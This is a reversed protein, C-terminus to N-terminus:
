YGTTWGASTFASYNSLTKCKNAQESTLGIYKLTKNGSSIKAANKCMMLINNLSEDSLNTCGYFANTMDKINSTNLIPVTILKTCGYFTRYFSINDPAILEPIETINICNEFTYGMNTVKNVDLNPIVTISTCNSFAANISTVIGTNLEPLKKLKTCNAFIASMDTVKNTNTFSIETLNSCGSFMRTMSTANDTNLTEVSVLNVCREFLDDMTTLSSIDLLTEGNANKPIIYLNKDISKNDDTLVLPKMDNYIIQTNAYINASTDNFLNSVTEALTGTEVGNKGYFEKEYVYDPTADLQTPAIIYTNHMYKYADVNNGSDVPVSLYNDGQRIAVLSTMIIDDYTGVRKTVPISQPMLNVRLAYNTGSGGANVVSVLSSIDQASYTQNTLDLTYLKVSTSPASSFASGLLTNQLELSTNIELALEGKTAALYCLSNNYMILSGSIMSYTGKYNDNYIKNLVNEIDSINYVYSYSQVINCKDQISVIDTIAPLVILDTEIVNNKYGYLGEFYMGGIQIFKGIADNWMETMEYYIETGFDVPNGTTDTRTYTIGDSSTYQIRINGTETYCDMMFNSSDLQGMCDFMSGDVARYRVDVYDTIATDLVVTDPFTATQFQSDVTANKIENIYVVALDGEKATTDAQMEEITKFLKVDGSGGAEPLNQIQTKIDELKLNNQELRERNTGTSM